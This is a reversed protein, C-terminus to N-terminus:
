QRILILVFNEYWHWQDLYGHEGALGLINLIKIYIKLCFYNRSCQTLIALLRKRRRLFSLCLNCPCGGGRRERSPTIRRHRSICRVMLSAIELCVQEIITRPPMGRIGKGTMANAKIECLARFAGVSWPFANPDSVPWNPKLGLCYAAAAKIKDSLAMGAGPHDLGVNCLHFEQPFTLNKYQIYIDEKLNTNGYIFLNM